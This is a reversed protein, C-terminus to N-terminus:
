FVGDIGASGLGLWPRLAVAPPAKATGPPKESSARSSTVLILGVVAGVGGVAFGVTSVTALSKMSEIDSQADPPCSSKGDVCRSNLSSRKSLALLGTASGIVLGAGGVGLLVYGATRGGGGKSATETAPRPAEAAMVPQPGPPQGMPALPYPAPPPGPPALLVPAVPPPAAALPEPDLRLQTDVRSGEGVTVDASATRYGPASVEIRHPGADVPRDVDLTAAPVPQGDVVVSLNVPGGIGDVHIKLKSIRPMAGDLVKKARTQAAAFAPPANPPLPERVVRQLNETGVVLKGVSVQCEGLRGLITPAHYLAEARELKEIAARCNGANALQVGDSALSRALAIDSASAQPAGQAHAAAPALLLLFPIAVFASRLSSTRM